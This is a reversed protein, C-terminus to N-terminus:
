INAFKVPVTTRNGLFAERAPRDTRFLEFHLHPGGSFGTNGSYGIIQGKRVDDGIKVVSRSIHAYLTYVGRHKIIIANTYREFDRLALQEDRYKPDMVNLTVSSDDKAYVVKGARAAFIKTGIPVNFDWANKIYDFRGDKYNHQTHVSMPNMGLGLIQARPVPLMYGSRHSAVLQMLKLLIRRLLQTEETGIIWGEREILGALRAIKQKTWKGSRCLESQARLIVLLKRIVEYLGLLEQKLKADGGAQEVKKEAFREERIEEESLGIEEFIIKNIDGIANLLSQFEKRNLMLGDLLELKQRFKAKHKRFAALFRGMETGEFLRDFSEDPLNPFRSM